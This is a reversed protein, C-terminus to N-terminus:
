HSGAARAELVSRGSGTPIITIEAVGAVSLLNRYEAETRERGGTVV